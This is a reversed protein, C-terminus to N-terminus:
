DTVVSHDLRLGSLRPCARDRRASVEIVKYPDFYCGEGVREYGRPNCVVRCGGLAYDFADHTHGHVWLDARRALSECNSAFAASLTGSRFRTHVSNMSPAHHTVIVAPGTRRRLAEDLYRRSKEHEAAADAPSWSRNGLLICHHDNVTEHACAMADIRLDDGFLCYDTWFTAGIFTVGDIEIERDQLVHVNSSRRAEALAADLRGLRDSGFFEHNGGVYIVPQANLGREVIWRVGAVLDECLDGAIVVVDHEPWHEPLLLPDSPNTDVHLDSFAWIRM